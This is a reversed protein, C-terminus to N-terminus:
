KNAIKNVKDTLWTGFKNEIIFYSIYAIVWSIIIAVAMFIINRISFSDIHLFKEAVAVIYYHILYYSFGANGLLVIFKPTKAGMKDILIIEIVFFLCMVLQVYQSLDYAKITNWFFQPTVLIIVTVASWIGFLSKSISDKKSVEKVIYFCIIGIVFFLWSSWNVYLYFKFFVNQFEFVKGIVAFVVAFASAIIARYKHSIRMAVAFVISFAVEMQLTHGLGVIPRITSDAKNAVREFPICFLSKILQEFDPVYGLLEPLIHAAFFTAFTLAWYLPILRIFRRTLFLKRREIKETSMVVFFGSICFFLNVFFKVDYITHGTIYPSILGFHFLSVCLAAIFRIAQISDIRKKTLSSM